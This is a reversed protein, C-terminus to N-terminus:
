RQEAREAKQSLHLYQEVAIERLKYFTDKGDKRTDLWQANILTEVIRDLDFADVDGWHKQLFRRRSIEYGSSKLMEQLLVTTKAAFESKGSPMLAKNVDGALEICADIADQIDDKSLVLAM